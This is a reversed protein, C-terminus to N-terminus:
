KVLQEPAYKVVKDGATVEVLERSFGGDTLGNLLSVKAIDKYGPTGDIFERKYAFVICKKETESKASKWLREVETASMEGLKRIMEPKVFYDLDTKFGKAKAVEMNKHSVALRGDQFWHYYKGALEDFQYRSMLVEEGSHNFDYRFSAGEVHGLSESMYIVAVTDNISPAPAVASVQPAATQQTTVQQKLQEIVDLAEALKAELEAKTM